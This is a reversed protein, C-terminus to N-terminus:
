KGGSFETLDEGVNSLIAKALEPESVALMKCNEKGILEEVTFTKTILLPCYFRQSLKVAEKSANESATKCVIILYVGNRLTKIANTGAKLKGARKAFGVYTFIKNNQM